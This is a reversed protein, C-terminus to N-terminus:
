SATKFPTLGSGEVFCDPFRGTFIAALLAACIAIFASNVLTLNLRRRMLLPAALLTLANLFRTAIWLQTSLNSGGMVPFVGMGKYGMTHIMDMFGIYLLGIGIFLLYQSRMFRRAGWALMFTGAAVAVSFGEALSHFLLYNRVSLFYLAALGSATLAAKARLPLRGSDMAEDAQLATDM